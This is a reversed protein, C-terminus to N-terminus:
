QHLAMQADAVVTRRPQQFLHFFGSEYRAHGGVAVAVDEDRRALFFSAVGKQSSTADKATITFVGGAVSTDIGQTATGNVTVTSGLDVSGTGADAALNVFENVLMDNTVANASIKLGAATQSLAGAADLRLHLAAGSATSRDTGDTTLVLAGTAADYLHIGVEDTPLQAVGAGMNVSFTNGTLDLGDGAVFTGTGTFQVFSVADTGVSAIESTQTWGTDALTSGEQVYFTAASFEAADSM